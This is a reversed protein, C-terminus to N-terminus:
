SASGHKDEESVVLCIYQEKSQKSAVLQRKDDLRIELFGEEGLQNVIETITEANIGAYSLRQLLAKREISGREQIIKRIKSYADGFASSNARVERLVVQSRSLTFQVLDIAAQIHEVEIVNGLKYEQVRLLMAVKLIISDTRFTETLHQENAFLRQKWSLYWADYMADAEPSLDYEGQCHHAIWALKPVLDKTIPYGPIVRPRSYIKTPITEYVSIVRSMFGGGFAEAPISDHLGDPTIAGMLTAYINEFPERGRGRTLESDYDKCDYLDLLLSILSQNYQQKGLFTPLESIAFTAKSGRRISQVLTQDRSTFMRSQPKIDGLIGDSTAKSTIINQQKAFAAPPSPLLATFETLLSAGIDLATSKRCLAPPAVVIVYLNPWMPKPYWKLWADRSLASSLTWLAGWLGMITPSEMGRMCNVYDTVFGPPPLLGDAYDVPYQKVDPEIFPAPTEEIAKLLEPNPDLFWSEMMDEVDDLIDDKTKPASAKKKEAPAPPPEVLPSPAEVPAPDKTAALQRRIGAYYDEISAQYKDFRGDM